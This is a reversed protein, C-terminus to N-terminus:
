TTENNLTSQKICKDIYAKAQIKAEKETPLRDYSTNKCEIGLDPNSPSYWYWGDMKCSYGTGALKLEGSYLTSGQFVGALVRPLRAPRPNKRWRIM